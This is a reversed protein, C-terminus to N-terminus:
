ACAARSAAVAAPWMEYSCVSCLNKDFLCCCADPLHWRSKSCWAALVSKGSVLTHGAAPIAMSARGQGASRSKIYEEFGDRSMRDPPASGASDHWVGGGGELGAELSGGRSSLPSGASAGSLTGNGATLGPGAEAAETSGVGLPRQSATEQLTEGERIQGLPSGSSRHELQTSTGALAQQQQQGPPAAPEGPAAEQVGAPDAQPQQAAPEVGRQSGAQDVLRAPLSLPVAAEANAGAAGSVLHPQPAQLPFLSDSGFDNDGQHAREDDSDSALLLHTARTRETASGQPQSM